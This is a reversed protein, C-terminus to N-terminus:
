GKRQKKPRAQNARANVPHLMGARNAYVRTSGNAFTHVIHAGQRKSNVIREANSINTSRWRKYPSQFHPTLLSSLRAQFSWANPVKSALMTMTRNPHSMLPEYSHHTKDDHPDYIWSHTLYADIKNRNGAPLSAAFNGILRMRGPAFFELTVANGAVRKLSALRHKATEGNSYYGAALYISAGRVSRKQERMHQIATQFPYVFDGFMNGGSYVADDFAVFVKIGAKMADIASQADEEDAPIFASPWRGIGRIARQMLWESSRFAEGESADSPRAILAYPRGRVKQRLWATAEDFRRDMDAATKYNIADTILKVQANSLGHQTANKLVINHLTSRNKNAPKITQLVPWRAISELLLSPQTKPSRNRKM